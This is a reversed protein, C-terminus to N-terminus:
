KCGFYNKRIMLDSIDWATRIQQIAAPSGTTSDGFEEYRANVAFDPRNKSFISQGLGHWKYADLKMLGILTPYIDIQGTVPKYVQKTTGNLIVLPTFGITAKWQKLAYNKGNSLTSSPLM